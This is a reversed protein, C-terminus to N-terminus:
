RDGVSANYQDVGVVEEFPARKRWRAGGHRAAEGSAGVGSRQDCEGDGCPTVDSRDVDVVTQSWGGVVVGLDGAVDGGVEAGAEAHGV